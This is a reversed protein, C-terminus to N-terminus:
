ADNARNMPRESITIEEDPLLVFPLSPFLTAPPFTAPSFLSEEEAQLLNLLYTPGASITDPDDVAGAALWHKEDVSQWRESLSVAGQVEARVVSEAAVEGPLPTQQPRWARRSRETADPQQQTSRSSQKPGQTAESRREPTQIRAAGGAPRLFLQLGAAADATQRLARASHETFTVGSRNWRARLLSSFVSPSPSIFRSRPINATLAVPILVSIGPITGDCNRAKETRLSGSNTRLALGCSYLLRTSFRCSALFSTSPCEFCASNTLSMSRSTHARSSASFVMM